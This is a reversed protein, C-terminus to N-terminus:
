ILNKSSIQINDSQLFWILSYRTGSTIPLIEHTIDVNFIYSNGIKKDLIIETKDYLKFDGGDFNENLLVGVSFIRKNLNDNHKGFWDNQNYKHFHIEKKLNIITHGSQKEFFYKLKEFIWNTNENYFISLSEYDRDNKKWNQLNNKNLNIISDCEEKSFIVNQIVM